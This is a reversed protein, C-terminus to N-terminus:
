DRPKSRNAAGQQPLETTYGFREFDLADMGSIFALDRPSLKPTDGRPTKGLTQVRDVHSNIHELQHPSSAEARKDLWRVLPDLGQELQFIRSDPPVLESMPQLHNDFQFPDRQRQGPLTRLWNSFDLDAPLTEEVDRQYLFVSRLRLAPHRVVAFRAAFFAPPLMRDLAAVTVHQPSSKNWHQDSVTQLYGRDLFGLAGFRGHLYNEVSSGACRPVHAFYILTHAIQVIPM